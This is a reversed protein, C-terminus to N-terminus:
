IRFSKSLKARASLEARLVLRRVGILIALWFIGSLISAPTPLIFWSPHYSTWVANEGIVLPLLFANGVGHMLVSTWVTGSRRRMLGYVQATILLTLTFLNFFLLPAASYVEYYSYVFLPIHWSTWIVGVILSALWQSYGKVALLPELYGRWAFEEFFAFLLASPLALLILKPYIQWNGTTVLGTTEGILTAALSTVPYVLLAFVYWRWAQRFRFTRLSQGFNISADRLSLLLALIFPPCLFILEAGEAAHVQKLYIGLWAFFHTLCAYIIIRIPFNEM